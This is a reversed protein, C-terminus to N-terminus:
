GFMGILGLALLLVGVALLGFSLPYLVQVTSAEARSVTPAPTMASVPQQARYASAISLSYALAGLGGGLVAVGGGTLLAPLVRSRPAEPKPAEVIPLPAPAPTVVVPEPLKAVVPKEVPPEVVAVPQPEKGGAQKWWERIRPSADSPLLLSPESCVAGLARFLDDVEGPPFARRELPRRGSVTFRALSLRRRVDVARLSVALVNATGAVELAVLARVGSPEAMAVLQEVCEDNLEGVCRPESRLAQRVESEQMVELGRENLQSRVLETAERGTQGTVAAGQKALVVAVRCRELLLAAEFAEVAQKGHSLGAHALGLYLHVLALDHPSNKPWSRAKELTKLAEAEDLNEVQTIARQLHPNETVLSAASLVVALLVRSTYYVRQTAVM